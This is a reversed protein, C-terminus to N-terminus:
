ISEPRWRSFQKSSWAGLLSLKGESFLRLPENSAFPKTSDTQTFFILSVEGDGMYSLSLEAAIIEYTDTDVTNNILNAQLDVIGYAVVTM